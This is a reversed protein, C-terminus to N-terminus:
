SLQDKDYAIRAGSKVGGIYDMTTGAFAAEAILPLGISVGKSSIKFEHAFPDMAGSRNKKVKIYKETAGALQYHGTEVVVEALFSLDASSITAQQRQQDVDAVIV